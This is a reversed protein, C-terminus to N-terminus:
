EWVIEIQLGEEEFRDWYLDMYYYMVNLSLEQFLHFNVM